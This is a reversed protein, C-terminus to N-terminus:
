NFSFAFSAYVHDTKLRNEHHLDHIWKVSFYVQHDLIETNWYAVPGIGASEGKFTGLLAGSGSDGSLQRFYNGNVGVGFSESFHQNLVYDLHFEDGTKYNTDHNKSNYGYGAVVSYDQGTSENLYTAMLDTEYTWYNLGINALDDADYAGTPTVLFNGWAFHLNDKSWYLYSSLTLDGFGTKDDKASLTLPGASVSAKIDVHGISPTAAFAFQAGFIEAQPKYIFTWFNSVLDLDAGVEVRGSRVSGNGEASYFYLDNRMSLGDPPAVALALDGYFGPIYNSVGGEGALCALPTSLGALAVVLIPSLSTFFKM